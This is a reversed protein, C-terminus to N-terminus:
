AIKFQELKGKHFQMAEGDMLGHIYSDQTLEVNHISFCISCCLLNQILIPLM